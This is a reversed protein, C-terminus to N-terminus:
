NRPLPLEEPWVKKLEEADRATRIHKDLHQWNPKFLRDRQTSHRRINEKSVEDEIRKTQLKRCKKIDVTVNLNGGRRWANRFWVDPLDYDEELTHSHGLPNHCRGRLIDWGEKETIGGFAVAKAFRSATNEDIGSAIQRETQEEVFGRKIPEPWGYQLIQFIDNSPYFISVCNEETDGFDKNRFRTYVISKM